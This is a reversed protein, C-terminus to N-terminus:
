MGKSIGGVRQFQYSSYIIKVEQKQCRSQLSRMQPPESFSQDFASFSTCSSMNQDVYNQEDQFAEMETKVNPLPMPQQYPETWLDPMNDDSKLDLLQEKKDDDDIEDHQSDFNSSNLPDVDRADLCDTTVNFDELLILDNASEPIGQDVREIQPQCRNTSSNKQKKLYSMSAPSITDLNSGDERSISRQKTAQVHSLVEAEVSSSDVNDARRKRMATFGHDRGYVDNSNFKSSSNDKECEIKDFKENMHAIFIETDDVTIAIVGEVKLMKKFDLGNKCLLTITELLLARVREQDEKM